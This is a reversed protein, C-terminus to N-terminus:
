FLAETIETIHSRGTPLTICKVSAQTFECVLISEKFLYIKDRRGMPGKPLKPLSHNISQVIRKQEAHEGKCSIPLHYLACNGL